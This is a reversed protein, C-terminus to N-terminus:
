SCANKNIYDSKDFKEKYNTFNPKLVQGIGM